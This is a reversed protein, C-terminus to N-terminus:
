AAHRYGMVRPFKGAFVVNVELPCQLEDKREIAEAVTRPAPRAGGRATWWSVADVRVPGGHELCIWESLRQVGINYDVRLSTRSGPKEHSRFAWSKVRLWKASDALLLPAAIPAAHHNPMEDKEVPPFEYGCSPCDRLGLKVMTKCKPCIKVPAVGGKGSGPPRIDDVPGHEVVNGAFDLVLFDKKGPFPRFGRGVEQYYKGPSLTPAFMGICDIEPDDFGETLININLLGRHRGAKLESILRDRLKPAVGDHLVPIDYGLEKLAAQMMEIHKKSAGFLLWRRRQQARAVFETMARRVLDEPTVAAELSATTYEGKEVKAGKMDPTADGAVPVPRCLYGEDILRAIDARYILDTLVRGKGCVPGGSLRWPTATLGIIRAYPSLVKVGKIFTRYQGEGTVPIRHAEDILIIEPAGFLRAKKAVSQIGAFIVPQDTDRRRLGSSYIGAEAEPWFAKLKDYGQQVLEKTHALVMIKTGPWTTQIYHIIAVMLPTKGAGTPLEICPNGDHESLYQFLEDFAGQQYWRLDLKM